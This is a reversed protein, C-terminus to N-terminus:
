KTSVNAPTSILTMEFGVFDFVNALVTPLVPLRAFPSTAYRKHYSESYDFKIGPWM